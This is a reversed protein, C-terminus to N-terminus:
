SVKKYQNLVLKDMVTVAIRLEKHTMESLHKRVPSHSNEMFWKNIANTAKTWEAPSLRGRSETQIWGLDRAKFIIYNRMNNMAQGYKAKIMEHKNM